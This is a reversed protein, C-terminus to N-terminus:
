SAGVYVARYRDAQGDKVVEIEGDLLEAAQTLRARATPKSKGILDAYEAATCGNAQGSIKSLVEEAAQMKAEAEQVAKVDAASLWEIDTLASADVPDGSDARGLVQPIVKWSLVAGRNHVGRTHDLQFTATGAERDAKINATTFMQDDVGSAGRTTYAARGKAQRAAKTPHSMVMVPCDLEMSLRRVNEVASVAEANSNEDELGSLAAWTDLVVLAVDDVDVNALVDDVLGGTLKKGMSVRYRLNRRLNDRELDSFDQWISLAKTRQRAIQSSSEGDVYVVIHKKTRIWREAFQDCGAAIFAALTLAFLSKGGNKESRVMMAGEAPLLDRIMWQENLLDSDDDWDVWYGDDDDWLEDQIAALTAVQEGTPERNYASEGIVGLQTIIKRDRWAEFVQRVDTPLVIGLEGDLLAEKLYPFGGCAALQDSEDLEVAINQIRFDGHEALRQAAGFILRSPPDFFHSADLRGCKDLEAKGGRLLATAIARESHDAQPVPRNTKRRRDRAEDDRSDQEYAELPPASSQNSPTTGSNGSGNAM